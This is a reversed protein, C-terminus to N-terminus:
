KKSLIKLFALKIIIFPSLLAGKIDLRLFEILLESPMKKRQVIRHVFCEILETRNKVIKDQIFSNQYSTLTYEKKVFVSFKLYHLLQDICKLSGWESRAWINVGSGCILEINDSFCFKLQKAAVELWFITDERASKYAENFLIGKLNSTKFVVTPTGILTNTLIQEFMNLNFEYLKNEADLVKCTSADFNAREFVSKSAGLQIYNAFYFDYGKTLCSLANQLHKEQWEDDSDLFAVYESEREHAIKLGLNRAAAPGSNSQVYVECTIHEPWPLNSIEDQASIPSGDDVVLLLISSNTKQNLISMISRLLIGKENQYFPIIITIEYKM